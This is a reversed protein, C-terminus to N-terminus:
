RLERIQGATLRRIKGGSLEMATKLILAFHELKEMQLYAAWPEKGVAVIGHQSLIATEHKAIEKEFADALKRTGPRFYPVSPVRGVHAVVEPAVPESLLEERGAYSFATAMPPHAHVVGHVDARARYAALHVQIENSPSGTGRVKKGDMDCVLLDRARVDGKSINAPTILIRDPGIRASVNGDTAAVMNKAYLATCAKVVLGRMARELKGANTMAVTEKQQGGEAKQRRSETTRRGGSGLGRKGKASKTAKTTLVDKTWQVFAM